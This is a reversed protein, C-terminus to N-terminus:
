APLATPQFRSLMTKLDGQVKLTLESLRSLDVPLYLASNKKLAVANSHHLIHAVFHSCFYHKRRSFPIRLLSMVVGLNSYRLQSKNQVFLQLLNKISSYVSECVSLEYLQCPFPERDPRLYRSISEVIFGKRVFSYFTNIDEELGISAHTYYCNTLFSVVKSGHDPFRTLRIYITRM